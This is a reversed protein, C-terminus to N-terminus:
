IDMYESWICLIVAILNVPAKIRFLKAGSKLLVYFIHIQDLGSIQFMLLIQAAIGLGEKKM